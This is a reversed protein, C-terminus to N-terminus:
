CIRRANEIRYIMYKKRREPDKKQKSTGKVIDLVYFYPFYKFFTIKKNIKMVRDGANLEKKSHNFLAILSTFANRYFICAFEIDNFFHYLRQWIMEQKDIQTKNM